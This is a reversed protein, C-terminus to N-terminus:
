VNVLPHSNNTQVFSGLHRVCPGPGILPQLDLWHKWLDMSLSSFIFSQPLTLRPRPCTPPLVTGKPMFSVLNPYALTCLKTEMCLQESHGRLLAGKKSSTQFYLNKKEKGAWPPSGLAQEFGWLGPDRATIAMTSPFGM